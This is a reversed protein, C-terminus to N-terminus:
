GRQQSVAFFLVHFVPTERGTGVLQVASDKSLAFHKLAKPLMGPHAAAVDQLSSQLRKSDKILKSANSSLVVSSSAM